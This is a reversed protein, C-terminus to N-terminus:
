APGALTQALFQRAGRYPTAFHLTLLSSCHGTYSCERKAILCGRLPRIKPNTGLGQETLNMNKFEPVFM